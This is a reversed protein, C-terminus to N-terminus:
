NKVRAELLNTIAGAKELVFDPIGTKLKSEADFLDGKLNDTIREIPKEEADGLGKIDVLCYVFAEKRDIGRFLVEPNKDAGQRLVANKKSEPYMRILLDCHKEDDKAGAPYREWKPELVSLDIPFM